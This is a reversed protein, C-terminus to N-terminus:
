AGRARNQEGELQGMLKLVALEKAKAEVEVTIPLNRWCAPMDAPDIYESHSRQTGSGWGGLPSSVHFLPERNWTARAQRTAQEVTLGDPLCQHHHVDYVFPVGTARCLPLLDAPTYVRDDNELTLRSRVKQPLAKIVRALRALAAPKDGYAGGGHLNIVDAAVWGAVEAQYVLEAVSRRVIAPDPSSLVNFQDPHFTLRLDHRRSFAGCKKFMGIIEEGNPLEKIGYGVEPHTKLPLIHSNVRFCGIGHDRCWTLAALLAQGNHRCLSALHQKQEHRPQKKLYAATARKFAIAEHKFLCCLGLRVHKWTKMGQKYGM